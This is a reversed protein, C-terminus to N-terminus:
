ALFTPHAAAGLTEPIAVPTIARGEGSSCSGQTQQDVTGSDPTDFDAPVFVVTSLADNAGMTRSISSDLAATRYLNLMTRSVMTVSISDRTDVPPLETPRRVM